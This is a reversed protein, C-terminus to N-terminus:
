ALGALVEEPYGAESLLLRTSAALADHLKKDTALKADLDDLATSKEVVRLSPDEMIGGPAPVQKTVAFRDPLGPPPPVFEFALCPMTPYATSEDGYCFGNHMKLSWQKEAALHLLWKGLGTCFYKLFDPSDPELASPLEAADLKGFLAEAKGRFAANDQANAWIAKTFGALTDKNLDASRVSTTVFLLWRHPARSLQMEVIRYLADVLRSSHDAKPTALSGCADFNVIHFPAFRMANSYAPNTPKCIREIPMRWTVSRDSITGAQILQTERLSARASQPSTEDEALFGVATLTCGLENAAAGLLRADLYDRGPLTLLRIEAPSVLGLQEDEKLREILWKGLKVWQWERIAQKRPRHWPLLADLPEPVALSVTPPLVDSAIAEESEDEPLNM